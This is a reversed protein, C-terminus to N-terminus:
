IVKFVSNICKSDLGDSKFHFLNPKQALEMIM